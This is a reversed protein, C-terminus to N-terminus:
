KIREAHNHASAPIGSHGPHCGVCFHKGGPQTLSYHDGAYAYFSASRGDRDRPTTGWRVVHGAKDFGALVTPTDTPAWTAAVGDRLPVKLILEWRGAIRPRDPDDFRDRRAAYIRLHDVAGNPVTDFIPGATTDTRQGPLDGMLTPTGIATAFVQGMPGRYAQGNLLPLEAPPTGGSQGDKGKPLVAIDRSYVAVPEADVLEPDDFLLQLDIRTPEVPGGNPWDDRALYLGFAGPRPVSENGVLPAGALLVHAPPCPSPTALWLPRGELDRDPGRRLGTENSHPLPRDAPRASPVNAILGPAAQVVTLPPSDGGPTVTTMFAIRNAFLPRPRWVPVTPKVLMGFHAAPVRTFAGLWIDTPQTSSEVGPSAPVVDSGDATIVERNRSWLSFAVYGSTLLFPWRDNNRNATVAHKRGDRDLLWLTTSRRSHDRGLDPVRSSAFMIPQGPANLEVPDVDDFDTKRREDDPIRSGDARWRMPPVATCGEDDPGGTLAHLGSGDVNIEYLRFHGSDDGRRGAFLIRRGDLSVSPSMVDIVTGGDPLPKGWTLEHVTGRPTLMRLRGERAAWLRTGPAAFGEAEPAAAVLSGPDTRSTFVIPVPPRHHVFANLRTDGPEPRTLWYAVPAGVAIIAVAALLPRRLAAARM